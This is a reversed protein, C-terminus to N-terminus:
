KYLTLHQEILLDMNPFFCSSFISMGLTKIERTICILAFMYLEVEVVRIVLALSM